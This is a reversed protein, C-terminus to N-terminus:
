KGITMLEDFREKIDPAKYLGSGVITVDVGTDYVRSITKLNVGGDVGILIDRDGRLDDLRKMSELTNEIFSQGGFGPFVSMVLIYDIDNIYKKLVNPNTDPNIAIGALKNNKKIIKIDRNINSSAEYHFIVTDSGADIYDQLYKDPQEIMLHTEFHINSIKRLQKIIFPGFTLNPVFHGDMVDIHLRDAGADEVEKIQSQIITFDASLISPSINRMAIV